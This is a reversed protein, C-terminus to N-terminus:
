KVRKRGAEAEAEIEPELKPDPALDTDPDPPLQGIAQSLLREEDIDAKLDALPGEADQATKHESQPDVEM